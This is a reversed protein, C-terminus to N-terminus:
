AVAQQDRIGELDIMTERWDQCHKQSRFEAQTWRSPTLNHGHRIDYNPQASRWVDSPVDDVREKRGHSGPEFGMARSFGEAEVRRVRERYHQILLERNACLQSTQKATYTVAHGTARDVKWWHLNYYYAADSPPRFAFHDPSYWVDHEALFAYDTDLAELGALIQRFMTLYGREANLVINRGLAVPQLTVSVIQLEGAAQRLQARCAELLDADGRCDSYYVIGASPWQQPLTSPLADRQDETWGPVPWFTDLLWRLPKVQGPWRNGTWLNRSYQRAYDQESGKIEYPFGIGGVRFFHAFWTRRNCVHRGGSLWSKLAIEVGFQGWSGHSEDLGGLDFFRQRAMFFCAGLSTM